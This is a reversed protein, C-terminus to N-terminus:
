ESVLLSAKAEPRSYIDSGDFTVQHSIYWSCFEQSTVARFFGETLPIATISTTTTSMRGIEFVSGDSTHINSGAANNM